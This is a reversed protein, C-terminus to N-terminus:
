QNGPGTRGPAPSDDVVGINMSQFNGSGSQRQTVNGGSTQANMIQRNDSGSQFQVPNVGGNVNMTQRNGSALRTAPPQDGAVRLSSMRRPATAVDMSNTGRGPAMQQNEALCGSLVLAASVVVRVDM